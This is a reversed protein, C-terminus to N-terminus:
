TNTGPPCTCLLIVIQEKITQDRPMQSYSFFTDMQFSFFKQSEKTKQREQKNFCLPFFWFFNIFGYSVSIYPFQAPLFFDEKEM